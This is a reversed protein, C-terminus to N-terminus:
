ICAGGPHCVAGMDNGEILPTPDPGDSANEDIGNNRCDAHTRCGTEFTIDYMMGNQKFIPEPLATSAFGLITDRVEKVAFESTLRFTKGPSATVGLHRGTDDVIRRFEDGVRITDGYNLGNVLVATTVAKAAAAPIVDAYGKTVTHTADTCGTWPITLATAGTRTVTKYGTSTHYNYIQGTGEVGYIALTACNLTGGAGENEHTITLVDSSCQIQTIKLYRRNNGAKLMNVGTNLAYAIDTGTATATPEGNAFTAVNSGDVSGIKISDEGASGIAIRGGLAAGLAAVTATTTATVELDSASEKFGNAMTSSGTFYGGNTIAEVTVDQIRGNPLARLAERIEKEVTIRYFTKDVDTASAGHTNSLGNGFHGRLTM